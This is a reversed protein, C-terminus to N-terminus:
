AVELESHQRVNPILRARGDKGTFRHVLSPSSKVAM